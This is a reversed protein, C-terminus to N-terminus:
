PRSEILAQTSRTLMPAGPATADDIIRECAAEYADRFQAAVATSNESSCNLITNRMAMGVRKAPGDSMRALEGCQAQVAFKVIRFAEEWPLIGLQEKALPVVIDAPKLPFTSKALKRRAMAIVDSDAFPALAESWVASALTLEEENLKASRHISGNMTLVAIITEPSAM